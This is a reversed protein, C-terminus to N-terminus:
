APQWGEDDAQLPRAAGPQDLGLERVVGEAAEAHSDSVRVLIFGGAPLEGVGGVLHEGMVFAPISADELAHKVLHADILNLAHYVTRM